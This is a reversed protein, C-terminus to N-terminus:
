KKLTKNQMTQSITAGHGAGMTGGAFSPPLPVRTGGAFMIQLLLAVRLNDHTPSLWATPSHYRGSFRTVRKVGHRLHRRLWWLPLAASPPQDCANQVRRIFGFTSRLAGRGRWRCIFGIAAWLSSGRFAGQTGAFVVRRCLRGRLPAGAWPCWREGRSLM